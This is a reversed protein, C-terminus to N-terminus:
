YKGELAIIRDEFTVIPINKDNIKMIHTPKTLDGEAFMEALKKITQIAVRKGSIESAVLDAEIECSKKLESKLYISIVDFINTFLIRWTKNEIYYRNRRM